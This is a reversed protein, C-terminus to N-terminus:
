APHGGLATCAVAAFDPNFNPTFRIPMGNADLLLQGAQVLVLKGSADRLHWVLGVLRQTGDPSFTQTYHDTDTLTYGTDLNTHAITLALHETIAGNSFDLENFDVVVTEYYHFDCLTGAPRDVPPLTLTGQFHAPQDALASPTAIAAIGAAAITALVRRM